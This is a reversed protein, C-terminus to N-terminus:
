IYKVKECKGGKTRSTNNFLDINDKRDSIYIINKNYETIINKLIKREEISNINNLCNNIIITKKNSLLSRALVVKERKSALVNDELLENDNILCVEKVKSLEEEKVNREFIINNNISDLMLPEYNNIELSDYLYRKDYIFANKIDIKNHKVEGSFDYEFLDIIRKFANKSSLFLRDFNLINSISNSYMIFLTYNIYFDGLSIMKFSNYHFSVLIVLLNIALFIISLILDYYLMNNNLKKQYSLYNNYNNIEKNIFNKSAKLKHIIPILNIKEILSNNLTIYNNRETDFLNILKNRILLHFSLSLITLLILIYPYLLGKYLYFILIIIIYLLDILIGPFNFIFDSICSLDDIKCILNFAKAERTNPLNFIKHYMNNRIKSNIKVYAKLMLKGNIFSLSNKLIEFLMLFIIIKKFDFEDIIFKIIYASSLNSLSFLTVLIFIISLILKNEKIIKILYNKYLDKEKKLKQTCSVHIIINQWENIFKNKNYILDGRIPDFLFIKNNKIRKIIVFHYYNNIKLYAITPHNLKILNDYDCKYADAKLNYYRLTKVINYISSGKNSIKLRKTINNYNINGKYYRIINYICSSACDKLNSQKVYRVTKM